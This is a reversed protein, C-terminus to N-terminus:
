QKIVDVIKRNLKKWDEVYKYTPEVDQEEISDSLCKCFLLDEM